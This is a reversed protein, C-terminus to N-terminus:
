RGPERLASDARRHFIGEARIRRGRRLHPPLLEARVHPRLHLLSGLARRANHDARAVARVTASRAWARLGRPLLRAVRHLVRTGGGRGVAGGLVAGAVASVGVGVVAVPLRRALVVGRDTVPEREGGLDACAGGRRAGSALAAEVPIDRIKGYVSNHLHAPPALLLLSVHYHNQKRTQSGLSKTCSKANPLTARERRARGFAFDQVSCARLSNRPEGL